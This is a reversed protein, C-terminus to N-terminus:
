NTIEDLIIEEVMWSKIAVIYRAGEVLRDRGVSRCDILRVESGAQLKALIKLRVGEPDKIAMNERHAYDLVTEVQLPDSLRCGPFGLRTSLGNAASDSSMSLGPEVTCARLMVLGMTAGM